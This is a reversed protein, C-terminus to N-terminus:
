CEEMGVFSIQPKPDFGRVGTLGYRRALTFLAEWTSFRPSRSSQLEDVFENFRKKNKLSYDTFAVFQRRYEITVVHDRIYYTM